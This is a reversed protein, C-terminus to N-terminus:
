SESNGGGAELTKIKAIDEDVLAIEAEVRVLKEKLVAEYEQDSLVKMPMYKSDAIRRWISKRDFSPDTAALHQKHTNRADLYNYGKQGTYGLTTFILTAPLITRRSGIFYHTISYTSPFSLRSEVYGALGERTYM